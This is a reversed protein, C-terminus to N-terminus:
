TEVVLKQLKIAKKCLSNETELECHLKTGYDVQKKNAHFGEVRSTLTAVCVVIYMKKGQVACSSVKM